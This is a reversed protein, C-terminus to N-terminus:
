RSNPNFGPCSMIFNTRAPAKSTVTAMPTAQVAQVL